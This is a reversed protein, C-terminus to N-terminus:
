TKAESQDFPYLKTLSILNKLMFTVNKRTDSYGHQQNLDVFQGMNNM